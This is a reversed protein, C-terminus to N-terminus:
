RTNWMQSILHHYVLPRAPNSSSISTHNLIETSPLRFVPIGHERTLQQQLPLQDFLNRENEQVVFLICLHRAPLSKTPGYARHAMALGASLTEVAKNEPPVSSRLLPHSPYASSKLLETHLRTVRESLGGFSSSITNFEVQKLSATDSDAPVNAMYDSRYLGLSLTQAYGEKQVALHVKWLHSIFDDVDILSRSLLRLRIGELIYVCLM